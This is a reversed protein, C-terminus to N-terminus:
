GDCLARLVGNLTAEFASILSEPSGDPSTSTWTAVTRVALEHTDLWRVPEAWRNLTYGRLTTM